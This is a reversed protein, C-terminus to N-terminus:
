TGAAVARASSAGAAQALERARATRPDRKTMALNVLVLNASARAAAEAFLTAAVADARLNPNGREAVLSGLEAIDAAAEAILLPIDAARSLANAIAQNRVEPELGKPLRLATLVEEYAVADAQALPAVHVRLEEARGVTDGAGDWHDKSFRAAMAVLGAAMAALLAAVSGGGPAPTEAAIEDLLAQVDSELYTASGVVM